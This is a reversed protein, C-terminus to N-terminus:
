SKGWKHPIGLRLIVRAIRDVIIQDARSGEGSGGLHRRWCMICLGVLAFTYHDRCFVCLQPTTM